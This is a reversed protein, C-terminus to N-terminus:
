AAAREAQDKLSRMMKNLIRKMYPQFLVGMIKFMTSSTKIECTYALTTGGSANVSLVYDPSMTTKGKFCGGTLDIAIRRPPDWKTVVSLYEYEKKGEMIWMKSQAGVDVPDTTIPEMRTVGHMWKLM